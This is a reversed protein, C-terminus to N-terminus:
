DFNFHRNLEDQYFSGIMWMQGAISEYAANQALDGLRGDAKLEKAIEILYAMLDPQMDGSRFASEIEKGIEHLEPLLSEQKGTNQPESALKRKLGANKYTKSAYKKIVPDNISMVADAGRDIAVAYEARLGHKNTHPSVLYGINRAHADEFALECMLFKIKLTNLVTDVHESRQHAIPIIEFVERDFLPITVIPKILLDSHVPQYEGIRIMLGADMLPILSHVPGSFYDYNENKPMPLGFVRFVDYLKEAADDPFSELWNETYREIM